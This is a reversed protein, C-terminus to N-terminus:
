IRTPGDSCLVGTAEDHSPVIRLEPIRQTWRRMADLTRTAEARDCAFARPVPGLPRLETAHEACYCSDGCLLVPAGRALRVLVGQHGPTHGPLPVLSVAGEAEPLAYGGAFPDEPARRGLDVKRVDHLGGFDAPNMRRTLRFALSQAHAFSWEERALYVPRSAVSGLGGTHDYDLHTLAVARVRDRTIGLEALRRAYGSTPKVLALSFRRAIAERVSSPGDAREPDLGTDVLVYSRDLLEVAFCLVPLVLGRFFGAVADGFMLGRPVSFTGCHFVHVAHARM